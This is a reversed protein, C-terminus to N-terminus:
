TQDAAILAERMTMDGREVIVSVLNEIKNLLTVPDSIFRKSASLMVFNASDRVHLRLPPCRDVSSTRVTRTSTDATEQEASFPSSHLYNFIPMRGLLMGRRSEASNLISDHEAQKFNGHRMAQLSLSLCSATLKSFTEDPTHRAHVPTGSEMNIVTGHFKEDWRNSVHIRVLFENTGAVESIVGCYAALWISPVSVNFRSALELASRRLGSSRLVTRAFIPLDADRPISFM